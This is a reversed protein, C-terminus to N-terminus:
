HYFNFRMNYFNRLEDVNGSDIVSKLALEVSNVEADTVGLKQGNLIFFDPQGTAMGLSNTIGGGSSLSCGASSNIGGALNAIITCPGSRDGNQARETITTEEEKMIEIISTYLEHSPPCAQLFFDPHFETNYGTVLPLVVTQDIPMDGYRGTECSFKRTMDNEAYLEDYDDNLVACTDELDDELEPVEITTKVINDLDHPNSHNTITPGVHSDFSSARSFGHLYVLGSQPFCSGPLTAATRSEQTAKTIAGKIFSGYETHQSGSPQPTVSESFHECDVMRDLGFTNKGAVSQRREMDEVNFQFDEVSVSSNQRKTRPSTWLSQFFSSSASFTHALSATGRSITSAAMSYNPSGGFILSHGNNHANHSSPNFNIGSGSSSNLLSAMALSSLSSSSQYSSSFTPRVVHSMTYISPSEAVQPTSRKPIEWAGMEDQRLDSHNKRKGTESSTAETMLRGNNFSQRSFSHNENAHPKQLHHYLSSRSSSNFKHNGSNGGHEKWFSSGWNQLPEEILMSLIFVIRRSPIRNGVIVTRTRSSHPLSAATTSSSNVSLLKRNLKIFAAIIKAIFTSGLHYSVWRLEELLESWKDQGCLARPIRAANLLRHKFTEIESKFLNTDNLQLVIRNYLNNFILEQFHLPLVPVLKAQVSKQLQELAALLEPWHNTLCAPNTGNAIFTCAIACSYDATSKHFINNDSNNNHHDQPRRHNNTTQSDHPHHNFLQPLPFHTSVSGNQVVMQKQFINLSGSSGSRIKFPQKKNTISDPFDFRSDSKLTEELRFVRSVMWKQKNPDVNRNIPFPHFKTLPGSYVIQSSGFVINQLEIFTPLCVASQKTDYLTHQCFPLDTLIVIRIDTNPDLLALPSPPIKASTGYLLTRTDAEDLVSTPLRFSDLSHRAFPSFALSGASSKSNVHHQQRQFDSKPSSGTFIKTLM